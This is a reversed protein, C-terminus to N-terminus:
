YPASSERVGIVSGRPIIAPSGFKGTVFASSHVDAAYRSAAPANVFARWRTIYDPVVWSKGLNLRPKVKRADLYNDFNPPM